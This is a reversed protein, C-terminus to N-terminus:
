GHSAPILMLALVVIITICWSCPQALLFLIAVSCDRIIVLIIHILGGIIALGIFLLKRLLEFFGGIIAVTIHKWCIRMSLMKKLNIFHIGTSQYHQQIMEHRKHNSCCDIQCHYDPVILLPSQFSHHPPKKKMVYFLCSGLNNTKVIGYLDPWPCLTTSLIQLIPRQFSGFIESHRDTSVCEIVAHFFHLKRFYVASLLSLEAYNEEQQQWQLLQCSHAVRLLQTFEKVYYQLTFRSNILPYQSDRVNGSFSRLFYESHSLFYYFPYQGIDEYLENHGLYPKIFLTTIHKPLQRWVFKNRTCTHYQNIEILRNIPVVVEGHKEKDMMPVVVEEQEVSTIMKLLLENSTSAHINITLWIFILYWIAVYKKDM